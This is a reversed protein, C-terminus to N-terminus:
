ADRSLQKKVQGTEHFVVKGHVLYPTTEPHNLPM